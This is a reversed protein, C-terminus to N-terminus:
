QQVTSPGERATRLPRPKGRKDHHRKFAWPTINIPAEGQQAGKIAWCLYKFPPVGNMLCTEVLSLMRGVRAAGEETKFIPAQKRIRIPAKIQREVHNTDLLIGPIRVVASLKNFDEVWYDVAKGMESNPLFRKEELGSQLLDMIENFVKSSHQQHFALREDIGWKRCKKDHHYIKGILEKIKNAFDEDDSSANIVRRRGHILCHIDITGKKYPTYSPLADSLAILQGLSPSRQQLLKGLNKGAHDRGIFYVVCSSSVFASAWASKSGGKELPQIKMKTDDFGVLYDNIVTKCLIEFVGQLLHDAQAFLESQTSAKIAGFSAMRNHTMGYYCKCMILHALVSEDHKPGNKINSPISDFIEGCLNCRLKESLHVTTKIPESATIRVYVGPNAMPYVKGDCGDNPCNDGSKLNPHTHSIRDAGDLDEYGRRGNGRQESGTSSEKSSNASSQGINGSETESKFGFLRGILRRLSKNRQLLSNISLCTELCQVVVTQMSEPLDSSKIKEITLTIDEESYQFLQSKKKKEKKM